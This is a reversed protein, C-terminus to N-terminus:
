SKIAPLKEGAKLSFKNTKVNGSDNITETVETTGDPKTVEEVRVDVHRGNVVSSRHTVSKTTCGEPGTTTVTEKSVEETISEFKGPHPHHHHGGKKQEKAVKGQNSLKRVLGSLEKNAEDGHFVPCEAVSDVFQRHAHHAPLEGFEVNDYTKRRDANRLTDYAETVAVFKKEAQTDAPNNKPHLELGKKRYAADIEQFSADRPVGLLEYYTPKRNPYYKEFFTKEDEELGNHRFFRDFTKLAENKSYHHGTLQDYHDRRSPNSLVSFAHTIDNFIRQSNVRDQPNREPHWRTALKRYAREIENQSANRGIGLLQYFDKGADSNVPCKSASENVGTPRTESGTSSPNTASTNKTASENVGTANVGTPKTTNSM